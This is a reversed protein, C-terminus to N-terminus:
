KHQLFLAESTTLFICLNNVEQIFETQVLHDKLLAEEGNSSAAGNDPEGAQLHEYNM